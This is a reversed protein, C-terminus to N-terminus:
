GCLVPICVFGMVSLAFLRGVFWIVAYLRVIRLERRPVRSQDIRHPYLRVKALLNRLYDETGGLLNKCNLATSIVYYGDTRLFLFWQWGLRTLYALLVAYSVLIVTHPVRMVGHRDAWILGILVAGSVGDVISGIMFALYRHRKPALWIGTSRFLTTYPFLTSRPPRRIM